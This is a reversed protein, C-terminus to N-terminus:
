LGIKRKKKPGVLKCPNPNAFTIGDTFNEKKVKNMAERLMDQRNRQYELMEHVFEADNGM